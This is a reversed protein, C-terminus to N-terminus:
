SSFISRVEPYEGLVCCWFIVAAEDPTSFASWNVFGTDLYIIAAKMKIDDKVLIVSRTSQGDQGQLCPFFKRIKAQNTVLWASNINRFELVVQDWFLRTSEDPTFGSWTVRGETLLLNVMKGQIGFSVQDSSFNEDVTWDPKTKGALVQQQGWTAVDVAYLNITLALSFFLFIKKM